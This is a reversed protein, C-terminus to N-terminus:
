QSQSNYGGHGAEAAAVLFAIAENINSADASFLFECEIFEVLLEVSVVFFAAIQVSYNFNQAGFGAGVARNSELGSIKNDCLRRKPRSKKNSERRRTAKKENQNEYSTETRRSAHRAFDRLDQLNIGGEDPIRLM